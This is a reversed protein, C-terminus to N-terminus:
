SQPMPINPIIACHRGRDLQLGIAFAAIFAQNADPHDADPNHAAIVCTYKGGDRSHLDDADGIRIGLLAIEHGVDEPTRYHVIDVRQKIALGIGHGDRRRGMKMMVDCQAADRAADM